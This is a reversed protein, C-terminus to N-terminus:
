EFILTEVPEDGEKKDGDYKNLTVKVQVPIHVDEEKLINNGVGNLNNIFDEVAQLKKQKEESDPLQELNAKVAEM